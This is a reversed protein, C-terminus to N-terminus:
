CLFTMFNCTIFINQQQLFRNKFFQTFNQRQQKKKPDSNAPSLFNYSLSVSSPCTTSIIIESTNNNLQQQQQRSNETSVHGFFFFFFVSVRFFRLGDTKIWTDFYQM